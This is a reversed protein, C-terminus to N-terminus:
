ERARMVKLKTKVLIINYHLINPIVSFVYRDYYIYEYIGIYINTSAINLKYVRELTQFKEVFGRAICLTWPLFFFQKQPPKKKKKSFRGQM